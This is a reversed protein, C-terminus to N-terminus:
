ENNERSLDTKTEYASSLVFHLQEEQDRFMRAEAFETGNFYASSTLKNLWQPLAASNSAGGEIRVNSEDLRILTLWVGPQHVRALDLMLDSYGSSKSVERNGLEKVIDNKVVQEQQLREISAVLSPDQQLSNRADTLMSIAKRKDAISQEVMELRNEAVSEHSHSVFAGALVVAAALGWLLATFHLNILYTKPKFEDFYFNVRTKM